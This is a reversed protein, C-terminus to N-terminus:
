DASFKRQGPMPNVPVIQQTRSTKQSERATALLVQALSITM